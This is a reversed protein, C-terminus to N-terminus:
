KVSCDEPPIPPVPAPAPTNLVFNRSCVNVAAPTRVRFYYEHGAAAHEPPLWLAVYQLVDRQTSDALVILFNVGGDNDQETWASSGLIRTYIAVRRDKVNWDLSAPESWQFRPIRSELRRLRRPILPELDEDVMNRPRRVLLTQPGFENKRLPGPLFERAPVTASPIPLTAARNLLCVLMAEEHPGLLTSAGEYQQLKYEPETTTYGIYENALGIVTNVRIGNATVQDRIAKGVATTAEVPVAALDFLPRIRVTAVSVERPFVKAALFRTPRIRRVAKALQNSDLSELFDAVPGDLAPEKVRHPGSPTSKRAEPRWGYNYLITRGDEAGGPEAAGALPKPPFQNTGCAANTSVRSWRIELQPNDDSRNAPRRLVDRVRSTLAGALKLVDDRDQFRWDPSIDGEAGNFFGAIPAETSELSEMAVGTLDSSYLESDHTMATPHVSYFVLLGRTSGKRVIKLLQLTPDVALYRPCNATTGDPCVAGAAQSAALVSGIVALPNRFFPAIARNRQIGPAYDEYFLLEHPTGSNSQADIIADTIAKAIQHALFDFLKRDFHPLPGAFSNYLESSAYNAPSHHTHTASIILSADDLRNTQNVIQLVQARLGAPLLFLECTVLALARNAGDQFYFARAHIRTWYGRAVRGAPGHGGMPIGPRPTIDAKGAGAVFGSITVPPILSYPPIRIKYPACCGAALL